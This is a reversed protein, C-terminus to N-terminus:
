FKVGLHSVFKIKKLNRPVGEAKYNEKHGM